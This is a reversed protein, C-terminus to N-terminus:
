SAYERLDARMQDTDRADITDSVRQVTDRADAHSYHEGLKRRVDDTTEGRARAQLTQQAALYQRYRIMPCRVLVVDNFQIVEGDLREHSGSNPLFEPFDRPRVLEYQFKSRMKRVINQGDPKDGKQVRMWFYHWDKTDPVKPLFEEDDLLFPNAEDDSTAFRPDSQPDGLRPDPERNRQPKGQAPPRSSRLVTEAM